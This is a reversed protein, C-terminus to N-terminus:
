QVKNNLFASCIKALETPSEKTGNAVWTYLLSWFIGTTFANAYKAEQKNLAKSSIYESNIKAISQQYQKFIYFMLDHHYLLKLDEIHHSWFDFHRYILEEYNTSYYNDKSSFYELFLLEIARELVADKNKFYRYFTKRGINAEQSIQTVTILSFDDVKMISFLSRIIVKEKEM